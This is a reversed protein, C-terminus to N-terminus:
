PGDPVRVSRWLSEVALTPVWQELYAVDLTDGALTCLTRVDELQRASGGQRAWDLKALILDEIRVIALTGDGFAMPQRRAFESASFARNKRVILDAKWGTEGDIVNFMTREALADRAADRSVYWGAAEIADVLRELTSPDPDIVVDVDLTSRLAGLYAAAVSGTLMAPTGSDRLAGALRELFAELTV